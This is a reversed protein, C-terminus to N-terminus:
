RQGARRRFPGRVEFTIGAGAENGVTGRQSSFYLRDGLPSFAPGALESEAPGAVRLFPAVQRRRPQDLGSIVCLELNGSDEAVFVDGSPRHVTVNDVDTLPPDPVANGDYLVELRQQKTDLGWVRNDGTTAFVVVGRHFDMGEGRAFATTQPSRDPETPAVDTWRVRGSPEVTAAQLRGAGLDPYKEPLFRYLRGETEDETLYVAKGVPDVAAAEHTFTGMLPREIGQGAELPQCEWIHGSELEEGSLWTGWPTPGGACNLSTGDLISYADVITGDDAFRIAGVGGGPAPLESNSVYVWSRGDARFTAGGDPFTHWEYGSDAVPTGSVAVVRSEFGNPLHLGNADPQGSLPGYPGDGPQAPAGAARTWWGSTLTLAGAALGAGIFRRRDIGNALEM